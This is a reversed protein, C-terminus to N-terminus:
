KRKEVLLKQFEKLMDETDDVADQLAIKEGYGILSNGPPNVARVQELAEKLPTIIWKSYYNSTGKVLGTKRINKLEDSATVFIVEFASRANWQTLTMLKDALAPDSAMLAVEAIQAWEPVLRKLQGMTYAKGDKMSFVISDPINAKLCNAFERRLDMSTPPVASKLLEALAKRNGDKVKHIFNDTFFAARSDYINMFKKVAIECEDEQSNLKNIAQADNQVPEPSSKQTTM